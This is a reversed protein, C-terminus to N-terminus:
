NFKKKPPIYNIQKKLEQIKDYQKYEFISYTVAGVLILFLLYSLILVLRYPKYVNALMVLFIVVNKVVSSPKIIKRNKYLYNQIFSKPASYRVKIVIVISLAFLLGFGLAYYTNKNKVDLLVTEFALTAIFIFNEFYLSGFKKRRYCFKLDTKKNKAIISLRLYYIISIIPPLTYVLKIVLYTDPNRLVFFILCIIGIFITCVGKSSYELALLSDIMEDYGKIIHEISKRDTPYVADKFFKKVVM